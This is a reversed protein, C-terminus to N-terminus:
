GQPINVGPSTDQFYTEAMRQDGVGDWRKVEHDLNTGKRGQVREVGTRIM